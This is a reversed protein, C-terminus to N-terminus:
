RGKQCLYNEKSNFLLINIVRINNGKGERYINARSDVGIVNDNEDVLDLFEEAM